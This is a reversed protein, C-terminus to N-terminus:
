PTCLRGVRCAVPMPRPCMRATNPAICGSCHGGAVIPEPHRRRAAAWLVRAQIGRPLEWLIRLSVPTPLLDVTPCAPLPASPTASLCALRRLCHAPGCAALYCCCPAAQSSAPMCPPLWSAAAPPLRPPCAPAGHYVRAPIGYAECCAETCRHCPLAAADGGDSAAMRRRAYRKGGLCGALWGLCGLLSRRCPAHAPSLPPVETHRNVDIACSPPEEEGAEEWSGRGAEGARGLCTWCAASAGVQAGAAPQRQGGQLARAAAAPGAGSPHGAAGARRREGGAGWPLAASQAPQPATAASVRRCPM